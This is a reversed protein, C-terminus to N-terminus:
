GGENFSGGEDLFRSRRAPQVGEKASAASPSASHLYDAFSLFSYNQSKLTELLTKYTTQTFDM